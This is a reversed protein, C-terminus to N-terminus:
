DSSGRTYIDPDHRQMFRSTDTVPTWGLREYVRHADRTALMWRRLRQYDPASQILGLMWTGIGQGRYDEDVIVDCLYGFTSRDTILRAFAVQITGRYVGFCDSHHISQKVVEIPAGRAWYSTEIWQHVRAVDIRTKDNSFLFGNWEVQM